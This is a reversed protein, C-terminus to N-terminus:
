IFRDRDVQLFYERNKFKMKKVGPTSPKYSLQSLGKYRIQTSGAYSSHMRLSFIM